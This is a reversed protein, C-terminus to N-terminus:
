NTFQFKEWKRWTKRVDSMLCIRKIVSASSSSLKGSAIKRLWYSKRWTMPAATNLNQLLFKQDTPSAPTVSTLTANRVITFGRRNTRWILKKEALGTVLLKATLRHCRVFTGWIIGRRVGISSIRPSTLSRANRVNRSPTSAYRLIPKWSKEKASLGRSKKTSWRTRATTYSKAANKSIRCLRKTVWTKKRVGSTKPSWDRKWNVWKLM